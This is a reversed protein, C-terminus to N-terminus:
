FAARSGESGSGREAWDGEAVHGIVERPLISQPSLRRASQMIGSKSILLQNYHIDPKPQPQPPSSSLLVLHCLPAPCVALAGPLLM